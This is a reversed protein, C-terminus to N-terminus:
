DVLTFIMKKGSIATVMKEFSEISVAREGSEYKSYSSRGKFGLRDAVDSISLCESSRLGKLILPVIYKTENSSIYFDSGNVDISYLEKDLSYKEEILSMFNELAEKKGKAETLLDLSKIEALWLNEKKWVKGKIQM